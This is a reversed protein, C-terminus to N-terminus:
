FLKDSIIGLGNKDIIQLLRLAAGSPENEGTEWKKVASPSVNLLMAFVPQSVHERLRVKKVDKPKMKKIPELCLLDFEHMTTKDIADLQYLSKVSKHLTKLIKSSM